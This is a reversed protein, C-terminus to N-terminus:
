NNQGYELLKKATKKNTRMSTTWTDSGRSYNLYLTLKSDLDWTRVATLGSKEVNALSEPIQHDSFKKKMVEVDNKGPLPAAGALEDPVLDPILGNILSTDSITFTQEPEDNENEYYYVELNQVKYGKWPDIGPYGKDKLWAATRYFSPYIYYEPWSTQGSEQSGQNEQSVSISIRGSPVYNMIETYTLESYDALYADLFTGADADDVELPDLDYPVGVNYITCTMDVTSPDKIGYLLCNDKKFSKSGAIADMGELYDVLPIRYIRKKLSGNKMRWTVQIERLYGTDDKKKYDENEVFQGIVKRATEADAGTLGEPKDNYIDQESLNLLQNDRIVVSEAQGEKPIWRDYGTVDFYFVLAIGLAALTAAAMQRRHSWIGKIDMQYIAEIVGHGFASGILIGVAMWFLSNKLTIEYLAWGSFLAAPIVLLFRLPMEMRPFAMARGAMEGKRIIFLFRTLILLIIIWLIAAALYLSDFTFHEGALKGLFLFGEGDHIMGATITMPSFVYLFRPNFGAADYTHYFTGAYTPLVGYLLLPAYFAFVCGGLFGTAIHGTLVMALVQVLYCLVFALAYAIFALGATQLFPVSMVGAAACIITEIVLGAATPVMFIILSSILIVKYMESRKAPLSFYFDSKTRSHLFAFSTIGIVAGLMGVLIMTFANPTISEVVSTLLKKRDTESGDGLLNQLSIVFGMLHVFVFFIVMMLEALHHGMYEKMRESLSVRSTM